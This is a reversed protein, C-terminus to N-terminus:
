TTQVLKLGGSNAEHGKEKDQSGPNEQGPWNKAILNVRKRRWSFMIKLYPSTRPVYPRPSGARVQGGGM